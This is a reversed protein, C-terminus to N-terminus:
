SYTYYVLRVLASDFYLTQWPIVVSSKGQHPALVVYRLQRNHLDVLVSHVRGLVQGSATVVPCSRLLETSTSQGALLCAFRKEGADRARATEGEFTRLRM